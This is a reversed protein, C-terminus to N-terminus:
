VSKNAYEAPAFFVIVSLDETISHFRHEIEAAVFVLSGTQVARDEDGVRIKAQGSAVYYLEDETHPQQPDAAGAKLVYLGVSMSSRRLFELYSRNSAQQRAALENMEFADM